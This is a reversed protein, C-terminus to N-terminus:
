ANAWKTKLLEIENSSYFHKYLPLDYLFFLKSFDYKSKFDKYIESYWKNKAENSNTLVFEDLELFDCLEQECQSLQECKILLIDLSDTSYTFAGQQNNIDQTLLNIKFNRKMEEDFWDSFYHYNLNHEFANVLHQYTAEMDKHIAENKKGEIFQIHLDQFFRSLVTAVPDRVLTIIKLHKRSALAKRRQNLLFRYGMRKPQDFFKAVDASNKYMKFEEYDDFTHIHYNPIQYTDLSKEISSSGVKGMQYILVFDERKFIKEKNIQRKIEKIM